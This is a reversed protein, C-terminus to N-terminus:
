RNSRIKPRYGEIYSWTGFAYQPLHAFEPPVAETIVRASRKFVNGAVPIRDLPPHFPNPLYSGAYGCRQYYPIKQAYIPRLNKGSIFLIQRDEPMALIEDPSMLARQQKTRHTEGFRHSRLDNLTSFADEGNLFAMAAKTKLRRAVEQRLTDDFELTENGLMESIMQATQYDRVGFFQRMASSGIFSQLAPQGFNRVIQGVDQYLAWAQVGAGRGFTFARLLADFHGLQGAEDVVMTIRPASPARSKYLLQVTFMVRLLPGWVSVYEIPVVIFVSAPLKPDCIDEFSFDPTELATQLVADDLFSMHAYLEGVIGGFERESDQQKALMEGATRRAGEFRSSLMFELLDAWAQPNGEITSIARWLSPFSVSGDREVLAKMINECWECARLEFYRGNSSQNVPILSQAIFKCDAHFTATDLRLIDLPQVRHKALAHMGTPNWTWVPVAAAAFAPLTVSSIEGRPDLVFRRQTPNSLITGALLDRMKGSGAGAITLLPADTQLCLDQREFSGIRHGLGNLMEAARLEFGTSWSASGFRQDEHDFHM